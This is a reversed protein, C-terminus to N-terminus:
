KIRKAYIAEAPVCAVFGDDCDLVKDNVCTTQCKSFRIDQKTHAEKNSMRAWYLVSAFALVGFLIVYFGTRLEYDRFM